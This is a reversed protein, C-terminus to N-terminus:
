DDLLFDIGRIAEYANREEASLTYEEALESLEEWTMGVRALLATRRETLEERTVEVVTTVDNAEELRNIYPGAL